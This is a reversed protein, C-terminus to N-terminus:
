APPSESAPRPAGVPALSGARLRKRRPQGHHRRHGQGAQLEQEGGAPAAISSGGGAVGGIAQNSTITTKVLSLTGAENVIGGGPRRRRAGSRAPCASRRTTVVVSHAVPRRRQPDRRRRGRRPRAPDDRGHDVGHRRSTSSAISTIATSSRRPAGRGQISVNADINLDGSANGDGSAALITLTFDGAPLIIKNSGRNADAAMIASRLSVHGSADTGTKLNVAVTDLLTNVHFTSPTVRGELGELGPRLRRVRARDNRKRFSLM